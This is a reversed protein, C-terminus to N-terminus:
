SDGTLSPRGASAQWRSDAQIQEVLFDVCTRLRHPQYKRGVYVLSVPWGRTAYAELVEVLQGSALADHVVVRALQAVGRGAMAASMLSTSNNFNLQGSPAVLSEGGSFEWDRYRLSEPRPMFFGLCQHRALDGPHEPRGQAALYLPSAVVALPMYGLPRAVLSSDPMTGVVVAVDFREQEMNVRRESMEVDIKLLPWQENLAMVIPGIVFQGFTVTSHLRLQGALGNAKSSLRAETEELSSLVSRCSEYLMEGEDTARVCRSSRVALRVGLKEELRTVAKSAASPSIGLRKAAITFSSAEVVHTFVLMQRLSDINM